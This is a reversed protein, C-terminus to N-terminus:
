QPLPLCALNEYSLKCQILRREVRAVDQKLSPYASRFSRIVVNEPPYRREIDARREILTCIQGCVGSHMDVYNLYEAVASQERPFPSLAKGFDRLRAEFRAGSHHAVLAALRRDGIANLVFCAGDIPHFGLTALSPSYGIDHLYVAALLYSREVPNSITPSLWQAVTVAGQVHLWRNGLSSLYTKAQEQAWLDLEHSLM